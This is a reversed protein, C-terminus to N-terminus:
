QGEQTEKYRDLEEVSAIIIRRPRNIDINLAMGREELERYNVYGTNILWEELFANRVRKDM